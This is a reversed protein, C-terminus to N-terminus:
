YDSLESLGAGVIGFADPCIHSLIREGEKRKMEETEAESM